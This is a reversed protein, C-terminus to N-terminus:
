SARTRRKHIVVTEPIPAPEPAPVTKIQTVVPHTVAPKPTVIQQTQTAVPQAVPVTKIVTVEPKVMNVTNQTSKISETQTIGQTNQPAVMKPDASDFSQDPISDKIASIKEMLTGFVIISGAILIFMVLSIGVLFRLKKFRM